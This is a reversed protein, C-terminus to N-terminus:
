PWVNVSELSFDLKIGVTKPGSYVSKLNSNKKKKKADNLMM